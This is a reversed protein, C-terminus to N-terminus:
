VPITTRTRKATPMTGKRRPLPPMEGMVVGAGMEVLMFPTPCDMKQWMEWLQEALLEGFDTGLSSSTFFDGGIGIEFKRSSYYGYEPHYLVLEMYEAFTIKGRPSANIRDRIIQPLIRDQM